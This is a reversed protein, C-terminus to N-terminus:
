EYSSDCKASESEGEARFNAGTVFGEPALESGLEILDERREVCKVEGATLKLQGGWILDLTETELEVAEKAEWNKELHWVIRVRKTATLNERSVLCVEGNRKVSYHKKM